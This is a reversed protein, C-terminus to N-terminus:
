LGVLPHGQIEDEGSSVGKLVTGLGLKQGLLVSCTGCHGPPAPEWLGLYSFKTETEQTGGAGSHLLPPKRWLLSLGNGKRSLKAAVRNSSIILVIQCRSLFPIERLSFLSCFNLPHFVKFIMSDLGRFVLFYRCVHFYIYFYLGLIKSAKLQKVDIYAM